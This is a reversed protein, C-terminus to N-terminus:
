RKRHYLMVCWAWDGAAKIGNKELADKFESMPNVDFLDYGWDIYKDVVLEKLQAKRENIIDQSNKVFSGLWETTASFIDKEGKRFGVLTFNKGHFEKLGYFDDTKMNVATSTYGNQESFPKFHGIIETM